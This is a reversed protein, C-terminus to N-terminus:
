IFPPAHHVLVDLLQDFNRQGPSRQRRCQSATAKPTRVLLVASLASAPRLRRVHANVTRTRVGRASSSLRLPRFAPTCFRIREAPPASGVRRTERRVNRVAYFHATPPPPSPSRRPPTNRELESMPTAPVASRISSPRLITPLLNTCEFRNQWSNQLTCPSLHTRKIPLPRRISQIM